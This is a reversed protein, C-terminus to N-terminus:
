PTKFFSLRSPIFNKRSAGVLPLPASAHTKNRAEPVSGSNRTYASAADGSNTLSIKDLASVNTFLAYATASGVRECCKQTECKTGGRVIILLDLHAICDGCYRSGSIRRFRPTIVANPPPETDGIKDEAQEQEDHQQCRSPVAGQAIESHMSGVFMVGQCNKKIDQHEHEDAFKKSESQVVVSKLHLMAVIKRILPQARPHPVFDLTKQHAQRQRRNHDFHEVENNTLERLM